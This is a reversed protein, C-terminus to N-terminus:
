IQQRLHFPVPNQMIKSRSININATFKLLKLMFQNRNVKNQPGINSNWAPNNLRITM